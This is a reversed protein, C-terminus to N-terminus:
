SDGLLEQVFRQDQRYSSRTLVGQLDALGNQVTFHTNRKVRVANIKHNFQVYRQIAIELLEHAQIQRSQVLQALGIGDYQIYESYKM